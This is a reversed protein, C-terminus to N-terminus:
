PTIAAIVVEGLAVLEGPQEGPPSQNNQGPAYDNWNPVSNGEFVSITSKMGGDTSGCWDFLNELLSILYSGASRNAGRVTL